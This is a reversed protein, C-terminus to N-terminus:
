QPGWVDLTEKNKTNIGINHIGRAGSPVGM